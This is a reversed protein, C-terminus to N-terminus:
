STTILDPKSFITKVSAYFFSDIDLRPSRYDAAYNKGSSLTYRM